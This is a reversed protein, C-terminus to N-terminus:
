GEYRLKGQVLVIGAVTGGGQRVSRAMAAIQPIRTKGLRAVLVVVCGRTFFTWPTEDEDLAPADLVVTSAEGALERYRDRLTQSAIQEALGRGSEIPSWRVLSGRAQPETTIAEPSGNAFSAANKGAREDFRCFLTSGTSSAADALGEGLASTSEGLDRTVPQLTLTTADGTHFRELGLFLRAAGDRTLTGRLTGLLNEKTRPVDQRHEIRARMHALFFVAFVSAGIAGLLSAGFMMKRVDKVPRTPEVAWTRVTVRGPAREEIQMQEIKRDVREIAELIRSSSARLRSGEFMARGYDELDARAEKMVDQMLAESRKSARAIRSASGVLEEAEHRRTALIRGAVRERVAATLAALNADAEAKAKEAKIRDPHSPSLDATALALERTVRGLSRRADRIEEDTDLAHQILAEPVGGTLQEARAEASELEGEAEVRKVFIKTLGEDLVSIRDFFINQKSDLMASGLKDSMADLSAYVAELDAELRERQEILYRTRKRISEREELELQELFSETVTNVLPALDDPRSSELGISLLHTERVQKVKLRARLHAVPEPLATGWDSGEERLKEIAREVVTHERALHALTRVHEDYYSEVSVKHWEEDVYLLHPATPAVLLTSEARFSPKFKRDIGLKGVAAMAVFLVIVLLKRKQVARVIATVDLSQPSSTSSPTASPSTPISTGSALPDRHLDIRDLM